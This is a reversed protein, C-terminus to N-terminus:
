KIDIKVEIPKTWAAQYMSAFPNHTLYGHFVLKEKKQMLKKLYNKLDIQSIIKTGFYLSLQCKYEILNGRTTKNFNLKNKEFHYIGLLYRGEFIGKESIQQYINFPTDLSCHFSMFDTSNTKQKILNIDESKFYLFTIGNSDNFIKGDIFKLSSIPNELPQIVLLVIYCLILVSIIKILTKILKIM